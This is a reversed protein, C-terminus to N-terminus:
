KKTEEASEGRQSFTSLFCRIFINPNFKRKGVIILAKNWSLNQLEGLFGTTSALEWAIFILHSKSAFQYVLPVPAGCLHRCLSSMHSRFQLKETYVWKHVERPPWSLM